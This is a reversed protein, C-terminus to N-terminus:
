TPIAYLKRLPWTAASVLVRTPAPLADRWSRDPNIVAPGASFRIPNGSANHGPTLAIVGPSEFVPAALGFPELIARAVGAPDAAFREYCVLQYGPERRWMATMLVNRYMWGATTFLPGHRAMWEPEAEDPDYSLVKLHSNVVGRPDRILHVFQTADGLAERVAALHWPMKSSDVIVSADSVEAIAAYLRQLGITYTRYADGRWNLVRRGLVDVNSFEAAHRVVDDLLARGDPAPFAVTMVASWFPCRNFPVRCSCLRNRRVGRDWLNNVEGVSVVGPASGLVAALITSGSRDWAGIRIVEMVWHRLYVTSGRRVSECDRTRNNDKGVAVSVAGIGIRSYWLM